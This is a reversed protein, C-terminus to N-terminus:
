DNLSTKSLREIEKNFEDERNYNYKKSTEIAKKYTIIAM